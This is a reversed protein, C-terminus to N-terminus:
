SLEDEYGEFASGLDELDSAMETTAESVEEQTEMKEATVTRKEEGGLCGVILTMALFVAVLTLFKKDM